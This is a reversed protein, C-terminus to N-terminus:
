APPSVVEEDHLTKPQDSVLIRKGCSPCIVYIDSNSDTFAAMWEGIQGCKPCTREM